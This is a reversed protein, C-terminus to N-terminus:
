LVLWLMCKRINNTSEKLKKVYVIAQSVPPSLTLTLTLGLGLVTLSLNRTYPHFSKLIGIHKKEKQGDKLVFYPGYYRRGDGM